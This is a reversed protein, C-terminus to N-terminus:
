PSVIPLLSKVKGTWARYSDCLSGCHKILMWIPRAAIMMMMMMFFINMLKSFWLIGRFTFNCFFDFLLSVQCDFTGNGRLKANGWPVLSLDVISILDTEFLKALYNIIFNASDPCLSEYYLGVSVKQSDSPFIRSALSSTFLLVFVLFHTTSPRSAM